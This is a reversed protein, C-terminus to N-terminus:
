RQAFRLWLRQLPPVIYLVPVLAFLVLSVLPNLLGLLVAILYCFPALLCRLSGFRAVTPTLEDTVLRPHHIAYQWHLYLSVGILILNLGYLAVALWQDHYLAVLGTSFPILGSFAFFLINLWHLNQDAHLIYQYQARHGLWYIGLLVFSVAYGVFSPWLDIIASPLQAPAVNPLKIDFVLLTMIIAFVGDCLAEIRGTGMTGMPHRDSHSL